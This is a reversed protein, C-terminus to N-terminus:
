AIQDLLEQIDKRLDVDENESAGKAIESLEDAQQQNKDWYDSPIRKLAVLLEGDYKEGALPDDRLREIAVPVIYDSYLEQRCCKCLDEVDFDGIPKDRVSSYWHGLSEQLHREEVVIGEQEEIARFTLDTTM